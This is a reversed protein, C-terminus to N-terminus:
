NLNYYNMAAFISEKVGMMGMLWLVVGVDVALHRTFM